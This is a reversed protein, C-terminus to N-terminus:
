LLIQTKNYRFAAYMSLLTFILMLCALDWHSYDSSILNAVVAPLFAMLAYVMNYAFAYFTARVSTPFYEALMVFYAGPLIAEIVHYFFVFAYLDNINGSLLGILCMPLGLLFLSAGFLYLNVRGFKDGLYAFLPILVVTLLAGLFVAKYLVPKPYAYQAHLLMPLTADLTVIAAPLIVIGIAQLLQPRYNKIGDLLSLKKSESQGLFEATEYLSRRLFAAIVAVIAGFAFALRWGFTVMQQQTLHQTLLYCVGTALAYGIGVNMILLSCYLGRNKPKAHEAFFVVGCPLEGGFSVGQSIRLMFLLIPALLGVYNVSPILAVALTSCAMVWMILFFSVRRGYKDAFWGLFAGGLPRLIFGFGYILYALTHSSNGPFLAQTFYPTLLLYIVFDYYELGAGFSGLLLTRVKM